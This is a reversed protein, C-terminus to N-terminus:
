STIAQPKSTERTADETSLALNRQEVPMGAMRHRIAVSTPTAGLLVHLKVGPYFAEPDPLFRSQDM